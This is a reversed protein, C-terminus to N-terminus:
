KSLLTNLYFDSSIQEIKKLTNALLANRELRYNEVIEDLSQQYSKLSLNLVENLMTLDERMQSQMSGSILLVQQYAKNQLEQLQEISQTTTVTSQQGHGNSQHSKFPIAM